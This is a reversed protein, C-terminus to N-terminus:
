GNRYLLLLDGLNKYLDTASTYLRIRSSFLSLKTEELEVATREGQKFLLESEKYQVEVNEYDNISIELAERAVSISQELMRLELQLNAQELSLDFEKDAISDRIEAREEAQFQNPSLTISVSSGAKFDFYNINASISLKPDFVPTEDLQRNLAELEVVRNLLAVTAASEPPLGELEGDRASIMLLVQDVTLEHVTIDGLDPGILQFLGKKLSLLSKQADYYKQRASGLASRSDELESYTIDNLEYRKKAIEYKREELEMSSEASQLNLQGKVLGLAAEEADMPVSNELEALQIEAKRFTEWNKWDISAGAFPNYSVRLSGSPDWADGIIGGLSASVSLEPIIPISVSGSVDVSHPRPSNPDSNYSYGGSLSLSSDEISFVIGLAERADALAKEAADISRSHELAYAAVDEVTMITQAMVGQLPWVLMAFCVPALLKKATLMIPEGGVALRRCLHLGM